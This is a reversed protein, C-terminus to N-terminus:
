QVVDSCYPASLGPPTSLGLLLCGGEIEADGPFVCPISGDGLLRVEGPRLHWHLCKDIRWPASFLIAQISGDCLLRVEGPSLHWHLCKDIRWSASFLIAQCKIHSLVAELRDVLSSFEPSGHIICISQFVRSSSSTTCSVHAINTVIVFGRDSGGGGSCNESDRVKGGCLCFQCGYM